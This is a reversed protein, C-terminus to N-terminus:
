EIGLDFGPLIKDELNIITVEDSDMWDAVITKRAKALAEEMASLTERARFVEPALKFAILQNQFREAEAPAVFQRRHAYAAAQRRLAEAEARAAPLVSNEYAHAKLIEAEKEEMSGVVDEFADGVAYPPHIGQLTVDLVRIGLRLADAQQQFRQKLAAAADARHTGLLELFDSSAAYRALERHCIRSFTTKPAAHSYLYDYLDGVRYYVYVTGSLLSVPVAESATEPTGAEPQERNAVLLYYPSKSHSITWLYGPLEEDLQEGIQLMEVRTVPYLRAKEIPWPWKLHVGPGLTARGSRPRGLREIIAREHADVVVFCTLLYFTAFQFLILPVIAREMFRYFWTESVKFGFQYDLTEAAAKLVGGSTTLLGLLRSDHAARRERGPTRPRYLSLVLGVATEAALLGMVVAIAYAVAREVIPLQLHVCVMSLGVLLCGIANSMAFGAGPRMPRFAAETALGAAYKALLFSGFASGLFLVGTMLPRRIPQMEARGLGRLMAFSAYGLALCIVISFVPLVFKEFQELRQAAPRAPGAESEFLSTDPASEAEALTRAELEEDDADVKLRQHLLVGFWVLSGALLHWGEAMCAASRGYRSLLLLAVAALTQVVVVVLAVTSSARLPPASGTSRANGSKDAM